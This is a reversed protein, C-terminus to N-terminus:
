DCHDRVSSRNYARKADTDGRVDTPPLELVRPYDVRRHFRRRDASALKDHYRSWGSSCWVNGWSGDASMPELMRRRYGARGLAEAAPSDLATECIVFRPCSQALLGRMGAIVLHEAGEVDIKVADFREIRQEEAFKDLTTVPVLLPDGMNMCGLSQHDADPTLSSLGSNTPEGSVYFPRDLEAADALAVAVASVRGEFQNRRVSERIMLVLSPNPEFAWVAGDTGVCRAALFSMYGVNAGIDAFVDGPRLHDRLLYAPNTIPEIAQPEIYTIGCWDRVDVIMRLGYPLTICRTARDSDMGAVWAKFLRFRLGRIRRMDSTRLVAFVPRELGPFARLLAGGVGALTNIM